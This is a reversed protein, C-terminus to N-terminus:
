LTVAHLAMAFPETMEDIGLDLPAYGFGCLPNRRLQLNGLSSDLLNFSITGLDGLGLDGAVPNPAGFTALVVFTVVAADPESTARESELAKPSTTSVISATVSAAWDSRGRGSIPRQAGSATGAGNVWRGSM